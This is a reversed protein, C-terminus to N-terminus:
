TELNKNIPQYNIKEILKTYFKKINKTSNNISGYINHTVRHIDTNHHNFCEKCM